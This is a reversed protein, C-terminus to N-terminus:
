EEEDYLEEEYEEYCNMLVECDCYGGMEEIEALVAEHQEQPINMSLWQQTHRRSHDCGTDELKYEVYKFLSAVQTLSLIYPTMTKEGNNSPTNREITDYCATIDLLGDLEHPLHSYDDLIASTHITELSYNGNVEQVIFYIGTDNPFGCVMIRGGYHDDTLVLEANGAPLPETEVLTRNIRYKLRQITHLHKGSRGACWFAASLTILELIGMVLMKQWDSPNFQDLDRADTMAVLLFINVFLMLLAGITAFLSSKRKSQFQKLEDILTAVPQNVEITVRSRIFSSVRDANTIGMISFNKGNKLLIEIAMYGDVVTEIDSIDCDLKIFCQNRAQVRNGIVSIHVSHEVIWAGIGFLIIIFGAGVGWYLSNTAQSDVIRIFLFLGSLCVGSLVLLIGSYTKNLHGKIM